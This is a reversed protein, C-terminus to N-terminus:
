VRSLALYLLLSGIGGVRWELRFLGSPQHLLRFM